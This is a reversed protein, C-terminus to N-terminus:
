SVDEVAELLTEPALFIGRSGAQLAQVSNHREVPHHSQMKTQLGSSLMQLPWGTRWCWYSPRSLCDVRGASEPEVANRGEAGLRLKGKGIYLSTQFAVLNTKSDGTM